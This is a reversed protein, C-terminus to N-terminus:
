VVFNPFVNLIPFPKFVCNLFVDCICIKEENFIKKKESMANFSEWVPLNKGYKTNM